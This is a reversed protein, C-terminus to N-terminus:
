ELVNGNEGTVGMLTGRDNIAAVYAEPGDNGTCDEVPAIRNIASQIPTAGSSSATTLTMRIPAKANKSKVPSHGISIIIVM